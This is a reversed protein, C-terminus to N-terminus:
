PCAGVSDVSTGAMYAACASDYDNGDCGCVPAPDGDCRDPRPRCSGPGRCFGDPRECTETGDCFRGSPECAPGGTDLVEATDMGADTGADDDGCAAGLVLVAALAAFVAARM